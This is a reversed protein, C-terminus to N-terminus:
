KNGDIEEIWRITEFFLVLQLAPPLGNVMSYKFKRDSFGRIGSDYWIRCCTDWIGLKSEGPLLLKPSTSAQKMTTWPRCLFDFFVTAAYGVGFKTFFSFNQTNEWTPGLFPLGCNLFTKYVGFIAGRYTFAHAANFSFGSFPNSVGVNKPALTMRDGWIPYTVANGLIGSIGGIIAFYVFM